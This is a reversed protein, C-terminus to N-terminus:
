KAGDERRQWARDLVRAWQRQGLEATTPKPDMCEDHEIKDDIKIHRTRLFAMDQTSMKLVNYNKLPMGLVIATCKEGSARDERYHQDTHMESLSRM